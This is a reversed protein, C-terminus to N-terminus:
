KKRINDTEAYSGMLYLPELDIAATEVLHLRPDFLLGANWEPPELLRAQRAVATAELQAHLSAEAVLVEGDEIAALVAEPAEAAPEDLLRLDAAAM